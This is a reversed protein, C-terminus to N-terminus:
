PYSGFSHGMGWFLDPAVNQMSAGWNFLKGLSFGNVPDNRGLIVSMGSPAVRGFPLAFLSGDGVMGWQRLTAGELSGLSHYTRLNATDRSLIAGWGSASPLGQYNLTIDV